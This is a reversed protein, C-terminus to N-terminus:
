SLHTHAPQCSLLITSLLAAGQAKRKIYHPLEPSIMADADDAGWSIFLFRLFQWIRTSAKRNQRKRGTLASAKTQHVERGHDCPQTCFLRDLKPPYRHECALLVLGTQVKAQHSLRHFMPEDRGNRRVQVIMRFSSGGGWAPAQAGALHQRCGAGGRMPQDSRPPPGHPTM